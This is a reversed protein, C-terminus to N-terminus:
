APQQNGKLAEIEMMALYEIAAKVIEGHCRGPACWCGLNVPEHKANDLLRVLELFAPSSTDKILKWLHKKYDNLTSQATPYPGHPKVKFPNGLPSGKRNPMARGIYYSQGRFTKVNVITIQHLGTETKMPPERELDQPTVNPGYTLMMALIFAHGCIRRADNLVDRLSLNLSHHDYGDFDFLTLTKEVRYIQELRRYASTSKVLDRYLPFYIRKRAEIYGLRSGNWLSYLPKAGKGMPYRKPHHSSWGATAWKWYADTPNVHNDGHQPYVKAYQWANEFIQAEYSNYLKVPSLNFPSLESTWESKAHSTTNITRPDRKDKPGIIRIMNAPYEAGSANM